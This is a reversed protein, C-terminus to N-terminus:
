FLLFGFFWLFFGSANPCQHITMHKLSFMQSIESQTIESLVVNQLVLSNLNLCSLQLDIKPLRMLQLEKLSEWPHGIELLGDGLPFMLTLRRLRTLKRGGFFNLFGGM